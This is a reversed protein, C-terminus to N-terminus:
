EDYIVSLYMLRIFEPNDSRRLNIQSFIKTTRVVLIHKGLDIERFHAYSNYDGM